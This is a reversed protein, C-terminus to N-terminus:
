IGDAYRMLQPKPIEVTGFKGFYVTKQYIGDLQVPTNQLASRAWRVVSRDKVYAIMRNTGGVGAGVLEKMPVFELPRGNNTTALNNNALYNGLSVATNAIKDTTLRAYEMPPLGVRGPVQQYGSAIWANLLLSNLDAAKEEPTKNAWLPSGSAGNPVNQVAVLNSNVLGTVNVDSDGLYVMAQSDLNWKMRLAALHDESISRGLRQATALEFVSAQIIEAWNFTPSLQRETDAGAVGIVTTRRGIFSKGAPNMGGTAVYKLLDFGTQEDAIDLPVIDIDREYPLDVVPTILVPDIRQLENTYFVGTADITAADMMQRGGGSGAVTPLASMLLALPTFKPNKM